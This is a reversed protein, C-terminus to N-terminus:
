SPGCSGRIHIDCTQTGHTSHTLEVVSQSQILAFIVMVVDHFGGTGRLDVTCTMVWAGAEDYTGNYCCHYIYSFSLIFVFLPLM